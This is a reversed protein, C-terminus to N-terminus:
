KSKGELTACQNNWSDTCVSPCRLRIDINADYSGGITVWAAVDIVNSGNKLYQLASVTPLGNYTNTERTYYYTTYPPGYATYYMSAEGGGEVEYPVGVTYDYIVPGYNSVLTGNVWIRIFDDAGGSINFLSVQTKDALNFTFKQNYHGSGIAASPDSADSYNRIYPSHYGFSMTGGSYSYYGAGSFPISNACTDAPTTCSVNLIRNCTQNAQVKLTADCQYNTNQDVVVQQGVPCNNFKQERFERCIETKYFVSSTNNTTCASYSNSLSGIQKGSSDINAAAGQTIGGSKQILPDNQKITIQPRQQPNRAIFNIAACEKAAPSGDNAQQACQQIKQAGPEFLSGKGNQYLSKLQEADGRVTSNVPIGGYKQLPDNAVNTELGKSRDQGFSKADQSPTQGYSAYSSFMLTISVLGIISLHSHRMM